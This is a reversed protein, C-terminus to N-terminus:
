SLHWEWKEIIKKSKQEISHTEILSFGQKIFLNRAPQQQSDVLLKLSHIQNTTAYDVATKLLELGLGMGQYDPTVFLWCIETTQKLGICGVTKHNVKALWFKNEANPDIFSTLSLLFEKQNAPEKKLGITQHYLTAILLSDNLTGEIIECFYDQHYTEQFLAMANELRKKENLSYDATEDWLGERVKKVQNLHLHNGKETLSITFARKDEPDISRQIIQNKELKKIITSLQGKNIDLNAVLEKANLSDHDYIEAVIRAENLSFNTSYFKNDFKGLLKAYFRNFMRFQDIFRFDKM